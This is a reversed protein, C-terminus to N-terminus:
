ETYIAFFFVLLKNVVVLFSAITKDHQVKVWLLARHYRHSNFVHNLSVAM